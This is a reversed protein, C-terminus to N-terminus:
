EAAAHLKDILADAGAAQADTALGLGVHGTCVVVVPPSPLAKLRRTAELGDLVPMDVDMLVIDPATTAAQELADRGNRAEGVVVIGELESLFLALAERFLDDDDVVMVRVGNAM